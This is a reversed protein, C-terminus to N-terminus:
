QQVLAKKQKVVEYIDSYNINELLKFIVKRIIYDIVRNSWDEVNNHTALQNMITSNTVTIDMEEVILNFNVSLKDISEIEDLNILSIKLLSEFQENTLEVPLSLGLHVQGVAERQDGMFFASENFDLEVNLTQLVDSGLEEVIERKATNLCTDILDQESMTFHITSDEATTSTAYKIDDMKDIHGGFGVSTKASLRDETIKSARKYQVFSLKGEEPFVTYFTVYPIIQLFKNDPNECIDRNVLSTDISESEGRILLSVDNLSNVCLALKM